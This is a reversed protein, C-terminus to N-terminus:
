PCPPAREPLARATNRRPRRFFFFLDVDDDHLVPPLFTFSFAGAIVRTVYEIFTAKSSAVSGRAVAAGTPRPPAEAFSHLGDRPHVTQSEQQESYM